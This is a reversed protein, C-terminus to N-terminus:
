PSNSDLFMQGAFQGLWSHVAGDYAATRSFAKYAMARRFAQDTGNHAELQELLLHYDSPDTIITVFEHNKASARIMAPGGIDINEICDDFDAGSAVTQEFPYLNVVVLDIATIGHDQM